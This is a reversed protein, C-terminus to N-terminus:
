LTPNRDYFKMVLLIIDEFLSVFSLNLLFFKFLYTRFICVELFIWFCNKKIKISSDSVREESHVYTGLHLSYSDLSTSREFYGAGSQQYCWCGRFLCFIFYVWLCYFLKMYLIGDSKKCTRWLYFFFYTNLNETPLIRITSWIVSPPPRMLSVKEM